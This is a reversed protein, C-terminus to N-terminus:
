KCSDVTIYTVFQQTFAKLLKIIYLNNIVGDSHYKLLKIIHLNNIVGENHYKLLKIIYLNSIVGDNHCKLLKIIHLKNIVVDHHYKLLEIIHLNNIVGEDHYQLGPQVCSCYYYNSLRVHHSWYSLWSGIGCFFFWCYAGATVAVAAAWLGQRCLTLCEESRVCRVVGTACTLTPTERLSALLLLLILSLIDENPNYYYYLPNRSCVDVACPPLAPHKVIVSVVCM